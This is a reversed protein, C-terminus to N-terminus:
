SKLAEVLKPLTVGASGQVFVDAASTLTTEQLDFVLIKAGHQKATIPIGAVPYVVASTGVVIVVDCSEALSQSRLLADSPIMEGFFIVTPKLIRDCPGCKPLERGALNFGEREYIKGCSLCELKSSNGHYEIVQQSGAEQHLNDVNQTIICQLLGMEEMNALATHAPNPKANATLDNMEFLMNWIKEPDSLFGDINAYVAPDFKAWLGQESRFDPIGSEVSIGAGTLGILQKANKIIEAAQKIQEEM